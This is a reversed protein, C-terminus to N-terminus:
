IHHGQPRAICYLGNCEKDDLVQKCDIFLSMSVSDIALVTSTKVRQVFLAYSIYYSQTIATQSHVLPM